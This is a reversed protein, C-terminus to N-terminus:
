QFRGESFFRAVMGAVKPSAILASHGIPVIARDAMGEVTTESVCVVGDNDGPLRGVTRGLGLPLTGAVVGLPEARTWSATREDWLTRSAGMMWSGFRGEGFRRGACCGRVPSGLLVVSSAPIDAHRSLTELILLGGFSHGVFHAPRGRLADRVYRALREVNADFPRRGRHGFTRPAYGHRALMRSLLIMAAGPMWLGPVLVVEATM